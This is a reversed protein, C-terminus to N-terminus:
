LFASAFANLGELFALAVLVGTEGLETSYAAGAIAAAAIGAVLLALCWVAELAASPPAPAVAGDASEGVRVEEEDQEENPAPKIGLNQGRRHMDSAGRRTM